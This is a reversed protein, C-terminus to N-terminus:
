DGPLTGSPVSGPTSPATVPPTTAAPGSAPPLLSLSVDGALDTATVRFTRTAGAVPATCTFSSGVELVKIPASGCAVRLPGGLQPAFRNGIAQATTATSIVSAAPQWRVDDPVHVQVNIALAQGTIATRCTFTTGASNAEGPPCVVAPKGVGYRQALGSSIQQSLHGADVRRPPGSGCGAVAVAAATAVLLGWRLRPRPAPLAM